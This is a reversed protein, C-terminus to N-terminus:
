AELRTVTERLVRRVQDLIRERDAGDLREIWRVRERCVDVMGGRITIWASDGVCLVTAGDDCYSITISM